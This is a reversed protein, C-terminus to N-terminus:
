WRYVDEYKSLLKKLVKFLMIAEYLGWTLCCIILGNKIMESM